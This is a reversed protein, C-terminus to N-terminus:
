RENTILNAAQENVSKRIAEKHEDFQKKNSTTFYSKDNLRDEESKYCYYTTQEVFVKEGITEEILM